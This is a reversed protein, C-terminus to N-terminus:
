IGNSNSGFCFRRVVRGVSSDSSTFTLLSSPAKPVKPVKPAKPTKPPRNAPNHPHNALHKNYFHHPCEPSPDRENEYRSTNYGSLQVHEHADDDWNHIPSQRSRHSDTAAQYGKMLEKHEEKSGKPHNKSADIHGKAKIALYASDESARDELSRVRKAGENNQGERYARTADSTDHRLDVQSPFDKKAEVFADRFNMGKDKYVRSLKGRGKVNHSMSRRAQYARRLDDHNDWTSRGGLLGQGKSDYDEPQPRRTSALTALQDRRAKHDEHSLDPVSPVERMTSNGHVQSFNLHDRVGQSLMPHNPNRKHADKLWPHPENDVGLDNRSVRSKVPGNTLHAYKVYDEFVLPTAGRGLQREHYEAYKKRAEPSNHVSANAVRVMMLLPRFHAELRLSPVVKTNSSIRISANDTLIALGDVAAQKVVDNNSDVGRQHAACLNRYQSHWIQYEKLVSDRFSSSKPFIVDFPAKVGEHTVEWEGDQYAAKVFIDFPHKTHVRSSYYPNFHEFRNSRGLDYNVLGKAYVEFQEEATKIDSGENAKKILRRLYSETVSCKIDSTTM